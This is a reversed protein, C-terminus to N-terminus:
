IVGKVFNRAEELSKFTKYIKKHSIEVSYSGKHRQRIYKNERPKKPKRMNPISHIVNEKQTCWRLNEARNNSIDYDIHDVVDGQGDCFAEAVLRHVYHNKKKGDKRLPVIRYGKGNDTPTLVKGKDKRPSKWGRCNMKVEIRDISRVNGLNSVQYLGEYGKIDKWIENM